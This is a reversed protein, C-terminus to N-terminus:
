WRGHSNTRCIVAHNTNGNLVSDLHLDADQMNNYLHFVDRHEGIHEISELLRQKAPESLQNAVHTHFICVAADEPMALAVEPLLSIGDGEIFHIDKKHQALCDAARRFLDRRDEHEPWILAELWHFDDPDSVDNIRLDLGARAAVP